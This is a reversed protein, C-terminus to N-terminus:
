APHTWAEGPNKETLLVEDTVVEVITGIWRTLRASRAPDARAEEIDALLDGVGDFWYEEVVDCGLGWGGTREPPLTHNQVYRLARAFEDGPADLRHQLWACQFAASGIDPKATLFRLLKVGRRHGDRIVQERAVLAHNKILDAFLRVEDDEMAKQAGGDDRHALRAEESYFTVIAVGDQSTDGGISATADTLVESQVYRRVNRWRANRNALLWHQRWWHVFASRTLSPHRRTLYILKPGDTM